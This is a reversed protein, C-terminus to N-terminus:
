KKKSSRHRNNGCARNTYDLAKKGQDFARMGSNVAFVTFVTAMIMSGLGLRVHVDRDKEKAM